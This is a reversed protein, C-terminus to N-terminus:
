LNAPAKCPCLDLFPINMVVSVKEFSVISYM